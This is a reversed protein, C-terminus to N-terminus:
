LVQLMRRNALERIFALVDTAIQERPAQFEAAFDDAITDLNREGDLAEIIKVAIEDVAMALEPALLVTQGRVSDHRLRVGRALKVVMSGTIAVTDESM